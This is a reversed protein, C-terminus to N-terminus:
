AVSTAHCLIVDSEFGVAGDVLKTGMQPEEGSPIFIGFVAKEDPFDLGDEEIYPGTQGGRGALRIGLAAGHGVLVNGQEFLGNVAKVGGQRRQVGEHQASSTLGGRLCVHAAGDAASSFAVDYGEVAM